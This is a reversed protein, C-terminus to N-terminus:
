VGSCEVTRPGLHRKGGMHLAICLGQRQGRAMATQLEMPTPIQIDDLGQLCGLDTQLKM